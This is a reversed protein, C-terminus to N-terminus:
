ARGRRRARAIALCALACAALVAAAACDIAVSVLYSPARPDGTSLGFLAAVPSAAPALLTTLGLLGAAAFLLIAGRVLRQAETIALLLLGLVRLALGAAGIVAVSALGRELGAGSVALSALLFPSGLLLLFGTHLIAFGVKGAVLRSLSVPTLTAYERLGARREPVYDEAGHRIALYTMCFLFALAVATCADQPRGERLAAEFAGRPWWLLLVLGLAAPLILWSRLLPPRTFAARLGEALFPNVAIRM